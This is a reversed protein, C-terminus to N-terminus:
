VRGVSYIRIEKRNKASYKHNLEVHCDGTLDGECNSVVGLVGRKVEEDM